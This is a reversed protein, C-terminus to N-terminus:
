ERAIIAKEGAELAHCLTSMRKPVDACFLAMLEALLAEDGEAVELAATWDIISAPEQRAPAPIESEGAGAGLGVNLPVLHVRPIKRRLTRYGLGCEDAM